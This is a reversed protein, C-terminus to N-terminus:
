LPSDFPCHFPFHPFIPILPVYIRQPQAVETRKSGLGGRSAKCVGGGGGRGGEEVGAGKEQLKPTPPTPLRVGEVEPHTGKPRVPHLLIM